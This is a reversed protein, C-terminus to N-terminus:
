LKLLKKANLELIKQIDEQKFNFGYEKGKEPLNKVWDVWDKSIMIADLAPWDTGFMIRDSFPALISKSNIISNLNSIYQATWYLAQGQNASIDAYVNPRAQMISVAKLMWDLGGFHIFVIKLDPFRAAVGDLYIPNAYKGELLTLGFPTTHSFIPVDLEVCKNYFPDFAPDDPYFGCTPYLKVGKMDWEEVAKELLKIAREGRRPDVACLSYLRDPYEAVQHAFWQNMEEVSWKAEGTRSLGYDIGMLLRKDIGAEDMAKICGDVNNITEQMKAGQKLIDESMNLAKASIRIYTNWFLDSVMDRPLLHAHMDITM